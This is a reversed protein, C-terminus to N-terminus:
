LISVVFLIQGKIAVNNLGAFEAEKKLFKAFQPIVFPFTGMTRIQKKSLFSDVQIVNVSLAVTKQENYEIVKFDKVKVYCFGFVRSPMTGFRDGLPNWLGGTSSAGTM